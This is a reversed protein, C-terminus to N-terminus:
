HDKQFLIFNEIDGVAEKLPARKLDYPAMLRVLKEMTKGKWQKIRNDVIIIGGYDEETRLLRGLKQHLSRTRHALYYDTFENGINAEFFNRRENVVLDMRLDPIKDIFIFQLNEGPIDIGEGFSEMGLLIGSHANKFDDVVNTGMGQIFLPIKGEFEKLLYERADEFRAKASFLLLSRGNLKYILPIIDKLVKPVFQQDYLAPTDECLYVKTKNKYDYTSPLYFGSKFRRDPDLYTYGTAWEIGRTGTDGNENALTASTFVVSQSGLLLQDKVIQGVNVPANSFLYGENELYKLSRCYSQPPNLLKEFGLAYDSVQSFFSEFRTFALIENENKLNKVDFRGSYPMLISLYNQLIFAISDLHNLIKLAGADSHTERSLMPLENWYLESYKPMKKFYLSMSESLPPLHDNLMQYTKLSEERLRKIVESSEGENSETQALLYFLSGIGQLHGISAVFHKFLNEEIELSYSKTAEEEIKHAEDVVVYLPRPMGKPWTFMLSHNGIIIDADKAERLGLIYSCNNKFPCHSGSCSRFDVAIEKEITSIEENKRKLVYPLDDRLIKQESEVRANHFFVIEFFLSAYLQKFDKNLSLLSNEGEEQRFLSECLHNSSGVLMKMKVDDPNLGLFEMVKPVDKLFAQHQLTKTGTSVLVQKKEEMAFLTGPILYGFTKGTGTPAQILAHVNNKFSQGVRLAMDIQSSRARYLPFMTRIKEESSFIDKINQGSFQLPFNPKRKEPLYNEHFRLPWIKSVAIEVHKKLDFEIQLALENLEEDTLHLFETLWFNEFKKELLQLKLFQYFSKDKKTVAVATLLVKLLDVSDEFGRHVETERIEWEKIFHELKLTSYEPFLLPLLLLTDVFEERESGDNIKDFSRKLFGEEFESNHAILKYGFLEQVTNEVSKFTPAHAVMKTTIGTLKQIFSSIEGEYQVLSSFKRVLKIGDFELFGIDIIQDYSQDAGTTEIDIVAWKSLRHGM